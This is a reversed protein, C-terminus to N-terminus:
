EEDGKNMSIIQNMDYIIKIDNFSINSKDVNQILNITM